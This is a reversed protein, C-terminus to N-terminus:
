DLKSFSTECVSPFRSPNTDRVRSIRFLNTRSCKGVVMCEWTPRLSVSAAEERGGGDIGRESRGGERGAEERGRGGEKGGEERGRQERGGQKKEGERRGEQKREGEKRGTGERGGEERGAQM